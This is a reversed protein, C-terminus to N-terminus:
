NVAMKALTFFILTFFKSAKRLKFLFYEGLVFDISDKAFVQQEVCVGVKLM